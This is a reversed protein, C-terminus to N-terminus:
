RNSAREAVWGADSKNAAYTPYSTPPNADMELVKNKWKKIESHGDAFSLGGAANHYSAPYDVIKWATPQDPYGWMGVIMEGDNISDEREDM